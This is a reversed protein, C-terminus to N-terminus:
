ESQSQCLAPRYRQELTGGTCNWVLKGKLSRPKFILTQPSGLLEAKLTVTFEGNGTIQIAHIVNNSINKPLNADINQNPWFGTDQIFQAVQNRTEFALKLGDQITQQKQYSRYYPLGFLWVLAAIVVVAIGAQLLKAVAVRSKPQLAPDYGCSRCIAESSERITGCEPCYNADKFQDLQQLKEADVSNPREVLELERPSIDAEQATAPSATTAPAVAVPATPEVIEPLEAAQPDEVLCQVGTKLLAQRYKEASAQDLNKKIISRPKETLPLTKSTDTKFLKALRAAVQQRDQGDQLGTIVLQYRNEAM